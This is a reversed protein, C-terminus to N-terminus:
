VKPVFEETTGSQTTTQVTVVPDASPTPVIAQLAAIAAQLQTDLAQLQTIVENM